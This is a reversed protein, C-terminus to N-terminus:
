KLMFLADNQDKQAQQHTPSGQALGQQAHQASSPLMTVPSQQPPSPQLPRGTMSPPQGTPGPIAMGQHLVMPGNGPQPMRAMSPSLNPHYQNSARPSPGNAHNMPGYFQQMQHISGPTSQFGAGPPVQGARAQQMMHLQAMQQAQQHQHPSPYNVQTQNFHQTQVAPPKARSITHLKQKQEQRSSNQQLSTAMAPARASQQPLASVKSRQQGAPASASPGPTRQQVTTASALTKKAPLSTNARSATPQTLPSIQKASANTNTNAAQKVETTREPNPAEQKKTRKRSNPEGKPAKRKKETRDTSATSSRDKGLAAKESAAGLESDDNNTKRRGHTSAKQTPQATYAYARKLEAPTVNFPDMDAEKTDPKSELVTPIEAPSSIIALTSLPSSLSRLHSSSLFSAAQRGAISCVELLNGELVPFSQAKPLVDMCNIRKKPVSLDLHWGPEAWSETSKSTPVHLASPDKEPHCSLLFLQEALLARQTAEESTDPMIGNGIRTGKEVISAAARDRIEACLFGMSPRLVVQLKRRHMRRWIGKKLADPLDPHSELWLSSINDSKKRNYQERRKSAVKALMCMVDKVKPPPRESRQSVKGSKKTSVSTAQLAKREKVLAGALEANRQAIKANAHLKQVRAKLEAHRDQATREKELAASINTDYRACRNTLDNREKESVSPLPRGDSGFYRCYKRLFDEKLRKAKELDKGAAEVKASQTKEEKEEKAFIRKCDQSQNLYECAKLELEVLVKNEQEKLAKSRQWRATDESTRLDSISCFVQGSTEAMFSYDAFELPRGGNMLPIEGTVISELFNYARSGWELFEPESSSASSDQNNTGDISISGDNKNNGKGSSDMNSNNSSSGSAHKESTNSKRSKNTAVWLGENHIEISLHPHTEVSSLIGKRHKYRAAAGVKTEPLNSAHGTGSGILYSKGFIHSQEQRNQELFWDPISRCPSLPNFEQKHEVANEALGRPRTSTQDGPKHHAEPVTVFQTTKNKTSSKKPSDTAEESLSTLSVHGEEWAANQADFQQNIIEREKLMRQLHRKIHRQRSIDYQKVLNSLMESRKTDVDALKKDQARQISEKQKEYDKEIERKYEDAKRTLNQHQAQHKAQLARSIRQWENAAMPEPFRQQQVNIRHKDLEESKEKQQQQQLLQVREQIKQDTSKLKEQYRQHLKAIHRQAENRTNAIYSDFWREYEAQKKKMVESVVQDIEKRELLDQEDVSALKKDRAEQCRRRERDIYAPDQDEHTESYFNLWSISKEEEGEEGQEEDQDPRTWWQEKSFGDLAPTTVGLVRETETGISAKTHISVKIKKVKRRGSQRYKSSTSIFSSFADGEEKSLDDGNM